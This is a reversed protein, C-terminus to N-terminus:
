RGNLAVWQRWNQERDSQLVLLWGLGVGVMVPVM